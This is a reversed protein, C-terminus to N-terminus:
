CVPLGPPHVRRKWTAGTQPRFEATLSAQCDSIWYFFFCFRSLRSPRSAACGTETYEAPQEPVGEFRDDVV